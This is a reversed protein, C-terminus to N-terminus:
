TLYRVIVIGSGGSAGAQPDCGGGGGGLGNVGPTGLTSAGQSGGNGGGGLGGTGPTGTSSPSGPSGETAGGGGGAYYTSFGSISYSLGDGGNGAVTSSQHPFGAEGAGGGGCQPYPPGAIGGTGGDNGQGPIGKGGTGYFTSGGGSGGDNGTGKTWGAGGGGGIATLGGFVSNSGNGGALSANAVGAGGAGITVTIGTGQSVGYSSVYLLGGAGGGGGVDGGGGAGGGAVVLVEVPGTFSPTFTASGTFTHVTYPGYYSINGGSGSRVTTLEALQTNTLRTNFLATTALPNPAQAAGGVQSGVIITDLSPVPQAQTGASVGNVYMIYDNNKYTLAAKVRQGKYLTPSQIAVQTAGNTIWGYLKKITSGYCAFFVSNSYGGSYLMTLNQDSGGTDNDGFVFDVYITGESANIVSSAGTKTTVDGPRTVTASTTPIYSTPFSGAENQGGWMYIGFGSEGVYSSVGNKAIGIGWYGTGTAGATLTRICRYWDNPLKEISAGTGSIVTGAAIDYLADTGNFVGNDAFAFIHFQTREAAKVFISITYAQGSTASFSPEYQHGGNGTTEVIKSANQTGDPSIAANLTQTYNFVGYTAFNQSQIFLNTRQPESLLAGRGNQYTIRPYNLRDTTPQYPKLGGTNVQASSIYFGDGSAPTFSLNGSSNSANVRFLLPFAPPTTSNIDISYRFWGGGVSIIQPNSHTGPISGIITNTQLNFITSQDQAGNSYVCRLALATNQLYKAYVSFTFVTNAPVTLSAIGSYKESTGVPTLINGDTSSFPGSLSGTKTFGSNNTFSNSDSALNAPTVEVYGQQNVRTGGDGGSFTFDGTGNSPLVSLIKDEEYAIISGAPNLLLSANNLLSAM